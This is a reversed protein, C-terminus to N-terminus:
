SGIYRDYLTRARAPDETGQVLVRGDPFLVLREGEPLEARLLFPNRSVSCVPM